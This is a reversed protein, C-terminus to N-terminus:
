LLFNNLRKAVDARKRASVETYINQTTSADAHGLQYQADKVDIDADHLLTAYGHRLQHATLDLGSEEKWHTWAKDFFDKKM